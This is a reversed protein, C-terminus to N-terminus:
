YDQFDAMSIKDLAQTKQLCEQLETEANRNRDEMFGLQRKHQELEDRTTRLEVNLERVKAAQEAESQRLGMVGIGIILGCGIVIVMGLGILSGYIQQKQGAYYAGIRRFINM